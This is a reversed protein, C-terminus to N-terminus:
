EASSDLSPVEGEPKTNEVASANSAELEALRRRLEDLEDQQKKKEESDRERKDANILRYVKFIEYFMIAFAPLIVLCVMGAPHKLITIFLGFLYNTGTVKGIVYNTSNEDSTDIFQSSTYTNDNQNDGVLELDWGGHKNPTKGVLRHTITEQKVYVYKFTLVDGEELADYWKKAEDEDEPVTEIFVMSNVPIDKIDYSSTDTQECKEMSATLVYRMQRGFVTVAGDSDKKSFITLIVGLLAIIVVAYLLVDGAIKLTKKLVRKNM